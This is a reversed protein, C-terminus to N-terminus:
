LQARGLGKKGTAREVGEEQVDRAEKSWKGGIRRGSRAPLGMCLM